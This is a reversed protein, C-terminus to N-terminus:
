ADHKPNTMGDTLRRILFRSNFYLHQFLNLMVNQLSLSSKVSIFQLVTLNPFQNRRGTGSFQSKKLIKGKGSFQSQSQKKKRRGDFVAVAVEKFNKKAGSFQL